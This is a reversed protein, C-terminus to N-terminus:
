AAQEEREVLIGNEFQAGARVPPVLPTSQHDRAPPEPRVRRAQVGDGVRGGPQWARPASSSRPSLRSGRDGEGRRAPRVEAPPQHRQPIQSGLVEAAQRGVVTHDGCAAHVRHRSVPERLCSGATLDQDRDASPRVCGFEYPEGHGVVARGVARYEASLDREHRGARVKRGRQADQRVESSAVRHGGCQARIHEVVPGGPEDRLEGRRARLLEGEFAVAARHITRCPPVAGRHSRIVPRTVCHCASPRGEASRMRSRTPM